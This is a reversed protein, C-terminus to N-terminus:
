RFPWVEDLSFSRSTTSWDDRGYNTLKLFERFLFKIPSGGDSTGDAALNMRTLATRSITLGIRYSRNSPLDRQPAIPILVSDQLFSMLNERALFTRRGGLTDAEVAEITYAETLLQYAMRLMVTTEAVHDNGWFRRPRELKVTVECVYDVGDHLGRFEAENFYRSLNLWIALSDHYRVIDYEIGDPPDVAAASGAGTFVLVLAMPVWCWAQAQRGSHRM